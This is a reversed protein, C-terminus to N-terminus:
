ETNLYDDSIDDEKPQQEKPQEQPAVDDFPLSNVDFTSVKIYKRVILPDIKSPISVGMPSICVAGLNVIGYIKSRPLVLKHINTDDIQPNLNVFKGTADTVREHIKCQEINITIRTIPNPLPKGANATSKDSINEQILNVIKASKLIILYSKICEIDKASSFYKKFMSDNINSPNPPMYIDGKKNLSNKSIFETMIANASTTKDKNKSEEIFSMLKNFNDFRFLVERKFIEDLLEIIGFYMSRFEEAPYIPEGKDDQKITIGDSETKVQTTWKQIQICPKRTPDRKTIVIKKNSNSLSLENVGEDTLPMIQGSHQEGNIFIKFPKKEKKENIYWITIWTTSKAQSSSSGERPNLFDIEIVDKWWKDNTSNTKAEQLRQYVDQAKFCATSDM